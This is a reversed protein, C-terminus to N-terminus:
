TSCSEFGEETDSGGGLTVGRGAGGGVGGEQEGGSVGVIGPPSKAGGGALSSLSEGGFVLAQQNQTQTCCKEM